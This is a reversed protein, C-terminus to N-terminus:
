HREIMYLREEADSDAGAPEKGTGLSWHLVLWAALASAVSGILIGLRGGAFYEGGGHQFALGAIFLSMTFGIGCAWAVGLIQLWTVGKPLSVLRLLVGLGIFIMIGFPKGLFLGLVVGLTVPHLVDGIGVGGLSLGANAFAFIPLIAYMVPAHLDHELERLPSHGGPGQLPVCFAILVGALTAHVGSKLMAVWLVVGLFVYAAVQTVRFRNLAIGVSLAIAGVWLAQLSLDASYFIAIIVIAALDDFIALTLLFVKLATPVRRGFVSLLALAFAIDTAVPIAWGDLAAPYQWNLTIYIAAPIVMGGFAGLGPLVVDRTSSLEGEVFERKVELGILFFFIAMLGDNIWLLLPKAIVLTGVQVAVPTNLLATYAEAFMSNATVLAVITAALLLLGGISELRIFERIASAIPQLRETQNM